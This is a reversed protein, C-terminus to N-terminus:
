KKVQRFYKIPMLVIAHVDQKFYVNFAYYFVFEVSFSLDYITQTVVSLCPEYFRQPNAAVLVKITFALLNGFVILPSSWIVMMTSRTEASKIRKGAEKNSTSRSLSASANNFESKKRLSARIEVLTRLNTAFLLLVLTFNILVSQALECYVGAGRNGFSNVVLKYTIITASSRNSNNTNNNPFQNPNVNAVIDYTFLKFANLLLMAVLIAPACWKFSLVNRWADFSQTIMRLRRYIFLFNIILSVGTAVRKGYVSLVLYAVQSEHTSGSTNVFFPWLKLLAYYTDCVAKLLLFYSCDNPQTALMHALVGINLSNLTLGLVSIALNIYSNAFPMVSSCASASTMTDIPTGNTAFGSTILLDM